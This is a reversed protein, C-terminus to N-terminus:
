NLCRPTWCREQFQPIPTPAVPLGRKKEQIFLGGGPRTGPMPRLLLAYGVDREKPLISPVAISQSGRVFSKYFLPTNM